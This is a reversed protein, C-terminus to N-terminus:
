WSVRSDFQITYFLSFIIRFFFGTWHCFYSRSIISHWTEMWILNNSPRLDCRRRTSRHYMRNVMFLSHATFDMALSGRFHLSFFINFVELLLLSWIMDSDFWNDIIYSSINCVVLNSQSKERESARIKSQGLMAGVYDYDVDDRMIKKHNWIYVWKM